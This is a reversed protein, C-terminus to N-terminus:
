VRYIKYAAMTPLRFAQNRRKGPQKGVAMGDLIIGGASAHTEPNKFLAIDAQFAHAFPISTFLSDLIAELGGNEDLFTQADEESTLSPIKRLSDHKPGLCAMISTSMLDVCNAHVWDFPKALEEDALYLFRKQWGPLRHSVDLTDIM